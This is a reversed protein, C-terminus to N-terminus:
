GGSRDPRSRRRRRLRGAPPRRLGGKLLRAAAYALTSYHPVKALGLERRLDSSDALIAVIGRYDTRFFQELSLIALLQPQTYDHRSRASSYRPLSGTALDIARRAVALPSKTM